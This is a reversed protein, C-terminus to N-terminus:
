FHNPQLSLPRAFEMGPGAPSETHTFLYRQDSGRFFYKDFPRQSPLPIAVPVAGAANRDPVM